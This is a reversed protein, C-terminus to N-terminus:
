AAPPMAFEDLFQRPTLIRIGEYNEIVLLDKDGTVILTAGARMACEFVMDDKPDRCIGRREGTIIIDIADNLYDALADEVRSATWYFKRILTSRIEILIPECLAIEFRRYAGRVAALPSGGFQFASIWVGSDFVVIL